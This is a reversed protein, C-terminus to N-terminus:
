AHKCCCTALAAMADCNQSMRSMEVALSCTCAAFHALLACPRSGRVTHWAGFRASEAIEQYCMQLAKARALADPLAEEDSGDGQM